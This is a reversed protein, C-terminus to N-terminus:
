EDVRIKVAQIYNDNNSDLFLKRLVFFVLGFIMIFGTSQILDIYTALYYNM